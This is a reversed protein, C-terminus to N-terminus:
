SVRPISREITKLSEDPSLALDTLTKFGDKYEAVVEAPNEFKPTNPGGLQDKNEAILLDGRRASELYLVDELEGPFSLLVFPGRLGFHTGAELPVIRITVAPKAAVKLLHALQGGLANGVPRRLIEGDLIYVQEPARAAVRDQREERLAIARAIVDDGIGWARMVQRTYDPTQLLGPIVLPQSMRIVSAGDEYGVYAEFGKDAAFDYRQWWGHSRAVRALQTLEDTRTDDVGYHRLVLLLDGKSPPSIVNEIRSFKAISMECAQAVAEQTEGRAARFKKLESSLLARAVAPSSSGTSM